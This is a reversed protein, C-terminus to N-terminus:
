QRKGENTGDEAISMMARLLNNTTDVQSQSPPEMDFYEFSPLRLIFEFPYRACPRLILTNDELVFYDTLATTGVHASRRTEPFQCRAEAHAAANTHGLQRKQLYVVLYPVGRSLRLAQAATTKPCRDANWSIPFSEVPGPGPTGAQPRQAGIHGRLDYDIDRLDGPTVLNVDSHHAHMRAMASPLIAYARYMSCVRACARLHERADFVAHDWSCYGVLYCAKCILKTPTSCNVFACHTAAAVFEFGLPLDSSYIPMRATTIFGPTTAFTADVDYFMPPCVREIFVSTPMRRYTAETWYVTVVNLVGNDARGGQRFRRIQALAIGLQDTAHRRADVDSVLRAARQQGHQMVIPVPQDFDSADPMFWGHGDAM